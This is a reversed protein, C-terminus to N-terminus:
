STCGKRLKRLWPPSTHHGHCTRQSASEWSGLVTWKSWRLEVSTSLLTHRRRSGLILSWSSPKTSPSCYTTRQAGSHTCRSCSPASCLARPFTWCSLPPPTASSRYSSDTTQSSTWYWTASHPVWTWLALNALWNWPPSQTSHQASILLYCESIPTTIKLTSSSHTFPLPSPMRQPATPESCLSTVKWAPQSTTKSTGFFWNRLVSLWFPPTPWLTTTM